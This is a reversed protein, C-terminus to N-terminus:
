PPISFCILHVTSSITFSLTIVSPLATILQHHASQKSQWPPAPISRQLPNSPSLRCLAPPRLRCVAQRSAFCCSLPFFFLCLGFCFVVVCFVSLRCLSSTDSLLCKSWRWWCWCCRRRGLHSMVAAALIERDREARWSQASDNRNGRPSSRLLLDELRQEARHKGTFSNSTKMAKAWSTFDCPSSLPILDWSPHSDCRRGCAPRLIVRNASAATLWDICRERFYPLFYLFNLTKPKNGLYM